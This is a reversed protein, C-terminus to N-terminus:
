LGKQLEKVGFAVNLRVGVGYVWPGNVDASHVPRYGGIADVSLVAGVYQLPKFTQDLGLSSAIGGIAQSLRLPVDVGVVPGFSANGHETNWAQFLGVHIRQEGNHDLHWLNEKTVGYLWQGDHIERIMIPSVVPSLDLKGVWAAHAQSGFCILAVVGLWHKM